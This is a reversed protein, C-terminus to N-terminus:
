ITLEFNSESFWITATIDWKVLEIPKLQLNANFIGCTLLIHKTPSISSKFGKGQTWEIDGM